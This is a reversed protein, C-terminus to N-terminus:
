HGDIRILIIPNPTSMISIKVIQLKGDANSRQVMYCLYFDLHNDPCNRISLLLDDNVQWVTWVFGNSFINFLLFFSFDLILWMAVVIPHRMNYPVSFLATSMPCSVLFKWKRKQKMKETPKKTSNGWSEKWESQALVPCQFVFGVMHLPWRISHTVFDSKTCENTLGNSKELLNSVLTWWGTVNHGNSKM